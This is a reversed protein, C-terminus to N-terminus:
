GVKSWYQDGEITDGSWYKNRRFLHWLWVVFGQGVLVGGVVILIEAM